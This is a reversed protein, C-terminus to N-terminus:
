KRRQTIMKQVSHANEASNLKPTATQLCKSLGPAFSRWKERDEKTRKRWFYRYGVQGAGWQYKSKERQIVGRQYLRELESRANRESLWPYCVAVRGPAVKRYEGDANEDPEKLLCYIMSGNLGLVAALRPYYYGCIREDDQGDKALEAYVARKTIWILLGRGTRTWDLLGEQKGERVLRRLQLPTVGIQKSFWEATNHWGAKRGRNGQIYKRRTYVAVLLLLASFRVNYQEAYRAFFRTRRKVLQKCVLKNPERNSHEVPLFQALIEAAKQLQGEKLLRIADRQILQELPNLISGENSSKM